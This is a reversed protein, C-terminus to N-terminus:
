KEKLKEYIDHEIKSKELALRKYKQILKLGVEDICELCYSDERWDYYNVVTIVNMEVCKPCYFRFEEHHQCIGCKKSTRDYEKGCSDCITVLEKEEVEKVVKTTRWIEPM